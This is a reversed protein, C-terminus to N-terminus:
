ENLYEMFEDIDVKQYSMVEDSGSEKLEKNKEAMYMELDAQLSNANDLFTELNDLVKDFQDNTFGLTTEALTVIKDSGYVRAIKLKRVKNLIKIVRWYNEKTVGAQTYGSEDTGAGVAKNLTAITKEQARRQGTVSSTSARVFKSLESFAKALNRPDIDRLKAFGEQHQQYTQSEPFTKALRKIRKQAVDRMRTYESRLTSIDDKTGSELITKAGQETYWKDDYWFQFSPETVKKPM